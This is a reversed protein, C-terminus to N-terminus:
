GVQGTDKMGLGLLDDISGGIGETLKAVDGYRILRPVEYARKPEDSPASKSAKQKASEEM